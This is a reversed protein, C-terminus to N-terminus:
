KSVFNWTKTKRLLTQRKKQKEKSHKGKVQHSHTLCHCLLFQKLSTNVMKQLKQGKIAEVEYDDQKVVPKKPLKAREEAREVKMREEWLM